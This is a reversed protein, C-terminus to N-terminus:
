RAVPLRALAMDHHASRAGLALLGHDLSSEGGCALSGVRRRWLFRVSTHAGTKAAFTRRHACRRDARGRGRKAASIKATKKKEMSQNMNGGSATFGGHSETGSKAPTGKSGSASGAGSATRGGTAGESDGDAQKADPKRKQDPM